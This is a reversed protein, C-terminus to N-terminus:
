KLSLLIDSCDDLMQDLLTLCFDLWHQETIEGNEAKNCM